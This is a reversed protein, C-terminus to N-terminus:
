ILEAMVENALMRGRDTLRWYGSDDEVLGYGRFKRMIGLSRAVEPTSQIEEPRVGEELRLRLMVEERAAEIADLTEGPRPDRGQRQDELYEEFSAANRSRTGERYGWAGVGLGMVPEARWYKLNHRCEEGPRAFNSIEYGRYGAARLKELGLQYMDAQLDGDPLSLGAPTGERGWTSGAELTLGYFSIHGPDLELARELSEEWTAVTQGPFGYILDLSLRGIGARRLVGLAESAGRADHARELVRLEDDLFSQVGLSVRHVGLGVLRNALEATVSEPNAECTIEGAQQPELPALVRSFLDELGEPGLLSPTGGGLFVTEFGSFEQSRRRAELALAELYEQVREQRGAWTVFDCYSCRHVCFPIHVYLGPAM